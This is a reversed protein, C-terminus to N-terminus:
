CNCKFLNLVFDPALAVGDPLLVPKLSDTKQDKLFGFKVPYMEPPEGSEASSWVCAQLHGRKVNDFFAEMTPPLAELKPCTVVSKGAKSSWAYM